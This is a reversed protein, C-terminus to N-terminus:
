FPIRIGGEAIALVTALVAKKEGSVFVDTHGAAVELGAAIILVARPTLSISAEATARGAPLWREQRATAQNMASYSALTLGAMAEIRLALNFRRSSLPALAAGLLIGFTSATAGVSDIDGTRGLAGVSVLVRSSVRWGLRLGAGTGGGVGSLGATTLGFLDISLQASEKDLSVRPPQPSARVQPSPPAPPPPAQAGRALIRADPLMTLLTYAAARGIETRDTDPAFSIVRTLWGDRGSRAGSGHVRIEVSLEPGSSVSVRAVAHARLRQEALVAERDSFDPPREQVIVDGTAGLVDRVAREIAESLRSTGEGSGVLVLLLLTGM